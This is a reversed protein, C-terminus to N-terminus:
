AALGLGTITAGSEWVIVQRARRSTAPTATSVSVAYEASNAVLRTLLEDAARQAFSLDAKLRVLSDLSPTQLEGGMWRKLTAIGVCVYEAFQKWTMGLNRRMQDLESTTLLDHARRYADAAARNYMRRSKSNLVVRGCSPCHSAVVQVELHEGRVEAVLTRPTALEMAHGCKICKM